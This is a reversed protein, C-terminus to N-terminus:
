AIDINKTPLSYFSDVKVKTYFHSSVHTIVSRHSIIYRINNYSADYKELGLLVLNKNGDYIRMFEDIKDFSIHFPKTEILTKCSIDYILINEEWKEDLLINNIDFDKFKIIQNFYYCARNKICNKKNLKVCIKQAGNKYLVNWMLKVINSKKKWRM